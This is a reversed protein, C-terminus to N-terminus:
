RDGALAEARHQDLAAIGRMREGVAHAHALRERREVEHHHDVDGEGLRRPERVVHQRDRALELLGLRGEEVELERVVVEM